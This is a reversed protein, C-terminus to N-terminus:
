SLLKNLAPGKLSVDLVELPSHSLPDRLLGQISIILSVTKM